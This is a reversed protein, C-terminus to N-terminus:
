SEPVRQLSAFRAMDGQVARAIVLADPDAGVSCFSIEQLESRSILQGGRPHKPDIPRSEQVSFGISCARIVGNKVLSCCQDALASLGEPAFMCRARLENNVIALHTCVGVPGLEPSHQWLWVPNRLYATYDIGGPNVDNLDRKVGGTSIIAGLERDGLVEAAGFFRQMTM